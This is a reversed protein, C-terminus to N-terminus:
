KVEPFNEQIDKPDGKYFVLFVQHTRGFKRNKFYRSVMVAVSGVVTVLIGENYLQLGAEEFAGVTYYPFKRYFGTDKNRFDSVVFCAFRNNKLMSCTTKIIKFYSDLFDEFNLSSIDRPDHSYIELDGYPPCSFILDYEGGILDKIFISDGCVWNPSPMEVAFKKDSIRNWQSYNAEVQEKRLEVGTYNMGLISAVIGRVSGGAFPDIIRGDPYNFWHYVLECLVPDFVSVGFTKKLTGDKEHYGGKYKAVNEHYNILREKRGVESEIGLSLWKKKRAQWYGQRADLVSFPPAGFRDKLSLPLVDVLGFGTDSKIM